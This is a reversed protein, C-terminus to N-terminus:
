RAAGAPRVFQHIAERLAVVVREQAATSLGPFIPLFLTQEAAAETNPLYTEAHEVAFYPERYLPQIGRRCSIGRRAMEALVQSITEHRAGALTLCYSSYCHTAWEPVYPTLVEDLGGLERDYYEAQERRQRLMEPLRGLQVLGIAAQIDTLRYSYGPEPYQQQLTGLAKHRVLDSVDAGAARLRRAREAAQEDFLIVMGGEATTIMKRPHFSYVTPQGHAGLYRGRYTAGFATAADEVLFLQYRRALRIFADIDAPLGIQHVLCIGRVEEDLASEVATPDLNFTRRDIDAFVPIAGALMLGNVTAMCTHAPVIVKQGRELGAVQFALHLASTASNTAIAYPAGVLAAIRREFEQVKPGQSVWGSALVEGVARLEEDELWPKLLPVHDFHDSM